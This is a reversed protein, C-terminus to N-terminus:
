ECGDSIPDVALYVFAVFLMQMFLPDENSVTPDAVATALLSAQAVSHSLSLVSVQSLKQNPWNLLIHEKYVLVAPHM